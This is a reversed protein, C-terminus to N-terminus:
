MGSCGGERFSPIEMWRPRAMWFSWLPEPLRSGSFDFVQVFFRSRPYGYVMAAVEDLELTRKDSLSPLGASYQWYMTSEPFEAGCGSSGRARCTAGAHDLGANHGAEHAVVGTVDVTGGTGDGWTYDRGNFVIDAEVAQYSDGVGASWTASIALIEAGGFGFAPDIAIINRGDRRATSIPTRGLYEFRFRSMEIANWLEVGERISPILAEPTVSSIEYALRAGVWRRLRGDCCDTQFGEPPCAQSIVGTDRNWCWGIASEPLCLISFLGMSLLWFLRLGYWRM